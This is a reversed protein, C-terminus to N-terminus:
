EYRGLCSRFRSTEPGLNDLLIDFDVGIIAETCICQEKGSLIYESLARQNEVPSDVYKGLVERTALYLAESNCGYSSDMSSYGRRPDELIRGILGTMGPANLQEVGAEPEEALVPFSAILATCLILAVPYVHKVPHTTM